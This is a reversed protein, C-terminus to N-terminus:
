DIEIRKTRDHHILNKATTIAAQSDSFMMVSDHVEVIKTAVNKDIPSSGESRSLRKTPGLPTDVPKCGLLWTESLLDLIYKRQSIVIGEKSRAVEM